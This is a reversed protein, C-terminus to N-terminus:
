FLRPADLLYAFSDPETSKAMLMPHACVVL